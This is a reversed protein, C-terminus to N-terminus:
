CDYDIFIGRTCDHNNKEARNYALQLSDFSQDQLSQHYPRYSVLSFTNLQGQSCAWFDNELCFHALLHEPMFYPKEPSVNKMSTNYSVIRLLQSRFYNEFKNFVRGSCAFIKDGIWMSKESYGCDGFITTWATFLYERKFRSNDQSRAYDRKILTDMDRFTQSRIEKTKLEMFNDFRFRFVLDYEINNEESYKSILSASKSISYTQALHFPYSLFPDVNSDLVIRSLWNPAAKRSTKGSFKTRITKIANKLDINSLQDEVLIKKPNYFHKLRETLEEIPITIASDPSRHQSKARAPYWSSPWSHIFFDVECGNADFFELTNKYCEESHRAMGSLSVAIRIKSDM